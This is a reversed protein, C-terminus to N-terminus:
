EDSDYSDYQIICFWDYNNNNFLEYYDDYIVVDIYNLTLNNLQMKVGYNVDNYILIENFNCVVLPVIFNNSYSNNSSAMVDNPINSFNINIYQPSNFNIPITSFVNNTSNYIQKKLSLLRHFNSKSLDIQFNTTSTFFIKYTTLDFTVLFNNISYNTLRKNIFDCLGEPTYTQLNFNINYVQNNIIIDFTNNKDNILYNSRPIILYKMKLYSKITISKKLYYRFNVSSSNDPDARYKSDLMIYKKM